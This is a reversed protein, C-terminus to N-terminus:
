EIEMKPLKGRVKKLTGFLDLGRGHNDIAYDLKCPKLLGLQVARLLGIVRAANHNCVDKYLMWIRSEYIENSDLHLIPGIGFPKSDLLAANNAFNEPDVTPAAGCIEVIAAVAGPNGGAMAVIMDQISMEATLRSM